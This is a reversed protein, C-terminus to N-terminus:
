RIVAQPPESILGSRQPRPQMRRKEFQAQRRRAQLSKVDKSIAGRIRVPQNWSAWILAVGSGSRAPLNQRPWARRHRIIPQGSLQDIGHWIRVGRQPFPVRSCSKTTFSTAPLRQLVILIRPNAVLVGESLRALIRPQTRYNSASPMHAIGEARARSTTESAV